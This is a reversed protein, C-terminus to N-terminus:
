ARAGFPTTPKAGLESHRERNQIQYPGFSVAPPLGKLGPATRTLLVRLHKQGDLRLNRALDNIDHVGCDPCASGKSVSGTRPCSAVPAANRALPFFGDPDSSFVRKCVPVRKAERFSLEEQIKENPRDAHGCGFHTGPRVAEILMEVDLYVPNVKGVVVRDVHVKSERLRRCPSAPRTLIFFVGDVRV